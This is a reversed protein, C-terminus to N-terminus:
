FHNVARKEKDWYITRYMSKQTYIEERLLNLANISLRM